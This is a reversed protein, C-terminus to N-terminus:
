FIMNFQTLRQSSGTVMHPASITVGYGISQPADMYPNHTVNKGRDVDVQALALVNEVDDSHIVKNARLNKVLDLNSRGHSRWAM